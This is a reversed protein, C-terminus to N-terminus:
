PTRGFDRVLEEDSEDREAAMWADWERALMGVHIGGLLAILAQRPSADAATQKVSAALTSWTHDVPTQVGDRDVQFFGETASLIIDAAIYLTQTAPDRVRDHRQSIRSTAELSLARLEVALMSAYGPVPFVESHQNALEQARRRMREALGDSAPPAPPSPAMVGGQGLDQEQEENSM